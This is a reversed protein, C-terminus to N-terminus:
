TKSGFLGFLGSELAKKHVMKPKFLPSFAWKKTGESSNKVRDFSGRCLVMVLLTGYLGNASWREGM